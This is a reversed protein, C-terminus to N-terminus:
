KADKPIELSGSTNYNRYKVTAEEDIGAITMKFKTEELYNSNNVFMTIDIDGGIISSANDDGTMSDMIGILKKSDITGSYYTGDMKTTKEINKVFNGLGVYSNNTAGTYKTKSWKGNESSTDYPNTVRSYIMKNKYDVYEETVVGYTSSTCYNIM